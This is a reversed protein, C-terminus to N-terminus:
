QYRQYFLASPAVQINSKYLLCSQSAPTVLDNLILTAIYAGSLKYKLM